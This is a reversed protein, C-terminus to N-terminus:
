ILGDGAAQGSLQPSPTDRYAPPLLGELAAKIQLAVTRSHWRHHQTHGGVMWYNDVHLHRKWMGRVEGEKDLMWTPDLRAAIAKPGLVNARGHESCTGCESEDDIGDGGLATARVDKDAFGTCWIVADADATSGDSFRLGTETYACPEVGAKVGVAGRTILETAGVDVYHGGAREVLNHMLACEPNRSDLVPFGAASLPAYRDPEHSAFQAFLDRGLQGDICTPLTMAMRDGADVGITYAGLARSDCVYDVPVVYTPSRVVMNTQIGAAHCDELLDFATNASGIILASEIGRAKLIAANKYDASHMSIGKYLHGDAVDPVFPRQSSVGTAQVLHKSVATRQGAPKKFKVIWENTSKDYHASQITASNIVDLDFTGVYEQIHETLEDRTLMHPAAHKEDYNMYLLHCLITPIHFKLCDYRLAWNDGVSPNRDIMVSGVGLAKLRAALSIAVNGGGIIFVDTQIVHSGDLEPSQGRATLLRTDEPHDELKELTTSLIWVKWELTPQGDATESTVPLLILRANCTAAPSATGFNIASDIFQLSPTAPIFQASGSLNISGIIGRLEKTELLAAAITAPTSFTRLHYTLALQDRWFAQSEFFCAKLGDYDKAALANNLAYLAMRAQETPEDGSMSMKASLPATAPLPNEAMM